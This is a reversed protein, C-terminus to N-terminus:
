TIGNERTPISGEVVCVYKGSYKEVAARLVEEAQKGSGAMLTEHYELSIINLILDGM